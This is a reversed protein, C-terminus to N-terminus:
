AANAKVLTVKGPEYNFKPPVVYFTPTAKGYARPQMSRPTSKAAPISRARKMALAQKDRMWM